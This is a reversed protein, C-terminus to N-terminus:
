VFASMAALWDVKEGVKTEDSLPALMVATVAASM